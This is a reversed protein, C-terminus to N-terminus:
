FTQALVGERDLGAHTGVGALVVAVLTRVTHRERLIKMVISRNM